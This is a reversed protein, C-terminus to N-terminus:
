KVGRLPIKNTQRGGLPDSGARRRSMMMLMMRVSGDTMEELNHYQQEGIVLESYSFQLQCRNLIKPGPSACHSFPCVSLCAGSERGQRVTANLTWCNVVMILM